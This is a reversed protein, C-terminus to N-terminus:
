RNIIRTFADCANDFNLMSSFQYAKKRISQYLKKDNFLIEIKKALDEPNNRAIKGFKGGVVSDRLGDVDYVVAPTGQSAAESVILGWGEKISTVAILHSQQMLEVKREQSVRGLYNIDKSYLSKAIAKLFRKYYRGEGAGAIIMKLNQIKQKAIEFAKVQDLTRKMPRIAGFSLLTPDKFKKISNLGTVPEITIGEPIIEINRKSFSFKLLDKKTSNSVTIVKNHRLLWLYIPELLYGIFNVPFFIQSFWIKRCLQHIFLFRKKEKVFYQTFFPITNVEEIVIDAWGVLNKKYFKYACWYVTWRSGVRQVKYGDIEEQKKAGPFGATVFFVEHGHKVLRKGIESAVVEAGGALPNKIDKWTFWLIKM